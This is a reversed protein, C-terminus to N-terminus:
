NKDIEVPHDNSQEQKLEDNAHDKGDKLVVPVLYDQIIM